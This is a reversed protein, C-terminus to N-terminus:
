ELPPYTIRPLAKPKLYVSVIFVDEVNFRHGHPCVAMRDIVKQKAEEPSHNEIPINFETLDFPCYTRVQFETALLTAWM